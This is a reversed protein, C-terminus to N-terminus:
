LSINSWLDKHRVCDCISFQYNLNNQAQPFKQEYQKAKIADLLLLLKCNMGIRKRHNSGSVFSALSIEWFIM